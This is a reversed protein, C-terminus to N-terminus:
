ELPWGAIAADIEGMVRMTESLAAVVKQYHTLEEFTLLRRRRDKLWKDLM